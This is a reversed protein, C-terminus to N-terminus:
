LLTSMTHTAAEASVMIGTVGNVYAIQPYDVHVQFSYLGAAFRAKSGSSDKTIAIPVAKNCQQGTYLDYSYDNEWLGVGISKWEM